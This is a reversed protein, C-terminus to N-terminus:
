PTVAAAGAEAVRADNASASGSVGVAGVVVGGVMIPVGGEVALMDPLGPVASGGRAVSEGWVKSPRGYRAATRAKRAAVECLVPLAGDFRAGTVPDGAADVVAICMEWRNRRAQEEAAALARRAGDLTLAPVMRTQARAVVPTCAVAVLLGITRLARVHASGLRASM